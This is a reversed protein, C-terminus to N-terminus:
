DLLDAAAAVTTLMLVAGALSSCVRGPMPAFVAARMTSYRCFFPGNLFISSSIFTRPTPSFFKRLSFDCTVTVAAFASWLWGYPRQAFRAIRQHLEREHHRQDDRDAGDRDRTDGGSQVIRPRDARCPVERRSQLVRS